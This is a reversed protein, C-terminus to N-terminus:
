EEIWVGDEEYIDGRVSATSSPSRVTFDTRGGSPPTLEAQVRGSQLTLTVANRGQNQVIEELSLRTLPRVTLVTDGINLLATSKFGTIILDGSQVKMGPEAKLLRETGARQVEVTGILERIEAEQADLLHPAFMTAALLLLPVFIMMRKTNMM